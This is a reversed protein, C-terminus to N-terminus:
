SWPNETTLMLLGNLASNMSAAEVAATGPYKAAIQAFSDAAQGANGAPSVLLLTLAQGADVERQEKQASIFYIIGAVVIIGALAGILRNKNAELWPWLKFIIEAPADQTQM